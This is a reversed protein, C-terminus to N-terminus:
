NIGAVFNLHEPLPTINYHRRFDDIDKDLWKEVYISHLPKKTSMATKYAWPYLQQLLVKRPKCQFLLFNKRPKKLYIYENNLPDYRTNNENENKYGYIVSGRIYNSNNINDFMYKHLKQYFSSSEKADVHFYDTLNYPFQKLTIEDTFHFPETYTKDFYKNLFQPPMNNKFIYQFRYLPTMFPAVLFALLTIPLKTQIFEIVKLAAESEISINLNYAVHGIDHIQRYRTLIYSENVDEFFHSVERDHAHINCTELFEIYKYGLTNKPLTKLQNFSVEQRILLPKEKLILRGEEDNLMDRYIQKVRFISSIDAAHALIHTQGPSGYIRFLNRLFIEVKASTNTEIFNSSFIKTFNYM